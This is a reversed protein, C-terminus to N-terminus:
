PILTAIQGLTMNPNAAIIDRVDDMYNTLLDYALEMNGNADGYLIQMRAKIKASYISHGNLHFDKPIPIGNAIDNIHFAKKAQSSFRAALQVLPESSLGYPIVHHAHIANNVIGLVKRLQSRNSFVIVGNALKYAKLIVRKSNSLIYVRKTIRAVTTWDGAFPAAATLSIVGNMYDGSAVYLAGNTVDFIAGIGPAMGLIDGMLHLTELSAELYIKTIEFTTFVHNNPYSSMIVSMEQLTMVSYMVLHNLNGLGPGLTALNQQIISNAQNSGLNNLNGSNVLDLTIKLATQAETSIGNESNESEYVVFNLLEKIFAMANEDYVGEDMSNNELYTFIANKQVAPLQMFYNELLASNLYTHYFKRKKLIMEHSELGGVPSTAVGSNVGVSGSGGGTNGGGGSSGGYGMPNHPDNSYSCEFYTYYFQALTCQSGVFHNSTYTGVCNSCM